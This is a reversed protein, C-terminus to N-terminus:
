GHAARTGSPRPRPRHHRRGRHPDGGGPAARPRGRAMHRPRAAGPPAAPRGRARRARGRDGGSRVGPEVGVYVTVPGDPAPTRVAWVRFDEMDQGDAVARLPHVEPEGERPVFTAVPGQGRVNPSAAVVRGTRTSSRLSTRRRSPSPRRCRTPRRWRRWIACGRGPPTTAGPREAVGSPHVAAAVAGATLAVAVVLTALSRPGPGCRRWAGGAQGRVSLRRGPRAPLGGATRDAPPGGSRSTSGSGCSAYTSRWSTRTATSRSTGSM